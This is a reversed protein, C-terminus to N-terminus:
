FMTRFDLKLIDKGGVCIRYKSDIVIRLNKYKNLYGFVRLVRNLYGNRLLATFRLISSTAFAVDMIGICVIWNMIGIFTQYKQHGGDDLLLSTDEEPHDGDVMPNDNKPLDKGFLEGLRRIAETM